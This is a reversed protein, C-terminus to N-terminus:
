QTFKAKEKLTSIGRAVPDRPGLLGVWDGASKENCAKVTSVANLRRRQRFSSFTHGMLLGGFIIASIRAYATVHSLPSKLM